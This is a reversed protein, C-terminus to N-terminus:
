KKRFVQPLCRLKRQHGDQEIWARVDVVRYRISHGIRLFRCGVKRRRMAEPSKVSFGTLISVQAATLYEPAVSYGPSYGLRTRLARPATGGARRVHGVTYQYEPVSPPQPLSNNSDGPPQSPPYHATELEAIPKPTPMSRQAHDFLDGM